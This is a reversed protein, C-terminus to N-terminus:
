PSQAECVVKRLVQPPLSWTPRKKEGVQVPLSSAGSLCGHHALEPGCEECGDRGDMPLHSQGVGRLGNQSRTAPQPEARDVGSARGGSAQPPFPQHPSVGPPPRAPPGLASWPVSGVGQEQAGSGGEWPSCVRRPLLSPGKGGEAWRDGGPPQGRERIIGIRPLTYVM